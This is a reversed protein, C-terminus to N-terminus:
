APGQHVPLPQKNTLFDQLLRVHRKEEEVIRNIQNLTQEDEIFATLMEYFLVTDKEFEVSLTLLSDLDKIRSFDAEDISFAHDGLVGQLVATGMEELRPDELSTKMNEKLRPFWKEHETEEDALWGLMSALAPDTVQKQAKRYAKQGNTEIRVALDIIEGLTFM